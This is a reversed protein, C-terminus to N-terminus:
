GGSRTSQDIGAVGTTLGYRATVALVERLWGRGEGFRERRRYAV